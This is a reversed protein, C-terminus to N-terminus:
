SSSKGTQFPANQRAAPLPLLCRIGALLVLANRVTQSKSWKCLSTRTRDFSEELSLPTKEGPSHFIGFYRSLAGLLSSVAEQAQTPLHDRSSVLGMLKRAMGVHLLSPSFLRREGPSLAQLRIALQSTREIMRVPVGVRATVTGDPIPSGDSQGAAIRALDKWDARVMRKVSWDAGVSRVLRTIGAALFVGFSQSIATNLTHAFDASYTSSLAILGGFGISFALVQLTKEPRALFIGAPILIFSLLVTLGLFDHAMPLLTYLFLIGVISGANLYILFRLIAPAPDDMFAFFSSVVAAMMTAIAGEPWQSLIWFASCLSVALIAAMASLAALMHDRHHLTVSASSIPLDGDKGQLLALRLAQCKSWRELFDGILDMLSASLAEPESVESRSLRSKDRVAQLLSTPVPNEQSGFHGIWDSVTNLLPQIEQLREPSHTRLKELHRAIESLLPLFTGTGARLINMGEVERSNRADYSAFLGLAALGVMEISLRHSRKEMSSPTATGTLIERAWEGVDALWREVRSMFLASSSRPFFLENVVFTCLVGLCVEEVRTVATSFILQPHEVSPFGILATTYGSLIFAYSRPTGDILSLYLCLGIWLAMSFTLLEPVNVLNPVLLVAVSAGIFTGMFRYLAKSRVMGTYPQAVIMVTLLAWYPQSLNWAFAIYLSTIAAIFTKISFLLDGSFTRANTKM